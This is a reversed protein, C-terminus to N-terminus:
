NQNRLGRERTTKEHARTNILVHGMGKLIMPNLRTKSRRVLFICLTKLEAIAAPLYIAMRIRTQEADPLVCHGGKCRFGAGRAGRLVKPIEGENGEYAYHSGRSVREPMTPQVEQSM